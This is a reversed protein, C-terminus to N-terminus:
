RDLVELLTQNWKELDNDFVIGSYQPVPAPAVLYCVWIVLGFAYALSNVQALVNAGTVGVQARVAVAILEISAFVGFGMAIGFLYNRWPLGFHFSLLFLFLLLGCQMVRVSRELLVVARVVGLTDAGPASAATVVAVVLLVVAACGFLITGFRRIVDYNQFLKRYIENIVMFGLAISVAQAAWYAYFYDAYSVRQRVQLVHVAFLVASRFVHFAVYAFFVPLESVLRRKVLAGGTLVLLIPGTVWPLYDTALLSM